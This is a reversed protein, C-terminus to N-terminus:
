FVKYSQVKGGSYIDRKIGIAVAETATAGVDMASLAYYVGSGIAYYDYKYEQLNTWDQDEYFFADGNPCALLAHFKGRVSPLEKTGDKVAKRLAKLMRMGAAWDGSLGVVAGDPLKFLKKVKDSDVFSKFTTRSDAAIVGDRYAITTM